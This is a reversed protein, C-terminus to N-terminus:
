KSLSWNWKMGGGGQMMEIVVLLQVKAVYIMELFRVYKRPLGLNLRQHVLSGIIQPSLLSNEVIASLALLSRFPCRQTLPHAVAM